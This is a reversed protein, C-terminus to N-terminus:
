FRPTRGRMGPILALINATSSGSTAGSLFLDSDRVAAEVRPGFLKEATHLKSVDTQIATRAADMSTLDGAALIGLDVGLQVGGVVCAKQNYEAVHSQAM